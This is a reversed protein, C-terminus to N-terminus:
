SSLMCWSVVKKVVRSEGGVSQRDTRGDRKRKRSVLVPEGAYFHGQPERPRRSRCAPRTVSRPPTPEFRSGRSFYWTRAAHVCEVNSGSVWCEYYLPRVSNQHIQPYGGMERLEKSDDRVYRQETKRIQEEHADMFKMNQIPSNRKRISKPGPQALQKM